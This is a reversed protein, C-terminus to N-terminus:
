ADRRQIAMEIAALTAEEGVNHGGEAESRALGQIENEVTLVGFGIPIGTDLQVRMIGDACGESVLEYHTTEGRIVAGVVVLADVTGTLALTQAAFPLEFSGPATTEVATAGAFHTARRAGDVLRNVLEGNWRARVIGVVLGDGDLTDPRSRAIGAAM